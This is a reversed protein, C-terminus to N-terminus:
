GSALAETPSLRSARVAPYLGAVIGVGVTALLGIGIAWAPLEPPWRQVYAYGTTTIASLAVGAVGGLTTLLLSETLFQIRIQGKTAGLSRRLGIEARRELVSIVMTNAVGVGGVLLAIAGLGLLLANFARETVLKAALADSPRSVAVLYPAAPNATAALVQRVADVQDDVARLYITTPHGASAFYREAAPSGILAASDLEPVLENPRLVGVVSFQQNGIMVLIRPDAAALGLRAAADSGLVVAPYAATAANLWM